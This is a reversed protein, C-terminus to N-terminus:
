ADMKLAMGDMREMIKDDSNNNGKDAFAKLLQYAQTLTKYVNIGGAAANLVEQTPEDLGHYLFSIRQHSSLSM